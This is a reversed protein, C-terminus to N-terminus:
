FGESSRSGLRTTWVAGLGVLLGFSLLMLNAFVFVGGLLAAAGGAVNLLKGIIMLSMLLLYGLGVSAWTAPLPKQLSLCLREMLLRGFSALAMLVSACFLLLAVPIVPIGLISVMMLVLTPFALMLILLGIGASKWFDKKVACAVTEVPGPLFAALLVLVTGLGALFSLFAAFGLLRFAPSMVQPIEPVHSVDRFRSILPAFQKFLSLDLRSVDGKHSAGQAKILKGGLLSIDGVVSAKSELVVDGGLSAVDGQVSGSIRVPGGMSAVAGTLRGAVTAPGGLSAVDGVVEGSVTVPGGLALCDGHVVGEIVLSGTTVIDDNRTEGKAVRVDEHSVDNLDVRINVRHKALGLPPRILASLGLLAILLKKSKMASEM